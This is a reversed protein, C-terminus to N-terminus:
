CSEYACSGTMTESYVNDFTMTGTATSTAGDSCTLTGTYDATITGYLFTGVVRQCDGAEVSVSCTSTSIYEQMSSNTGSTSFSDTVTVTIGETADVVDFDEELGISVGDAISVSSSTTISQSYEETWTFDENCSVSSDGSTNNCYFDENAGASETFKVNSTTVDSLIPSDCDPPASSCDHCSCSYEHTDGKCDYTARGATDYYVVPFSTKGSVGKMKIEVELSAGAAVDSTKFTACKTETSWAGYFNNWSVLTEGTDKNKVQFKLSYSGSNEVCVSDAYHTKHTKTHGSLSSAALKSAILGKHMFAGSARRLRHSYAGGGFASAAVVLLFALPTPHM